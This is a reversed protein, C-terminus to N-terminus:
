RRSKLVAILEFIGTGLVVLVVSWLVVYGHFPIDFPDVVLWILVTGAGLTNIIIAGVLGLGRSQEDNRREIWLAIGIGLLVAGLVTVYFLTETPPLGFFRITPGPLILLCLGLLVNIIVDITLLAHRQPKKMGCTNPPFVRRALPAM